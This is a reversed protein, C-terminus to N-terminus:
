GASPPSDKSGAPPSESPSEAAPEGPAGSSPETGEIEATTTSTPVDTEEVELIGKDILFREVAQAGEPGIGELTALDAITYSFFDGVVNINHLKLAVVLEPPLETSELALAPLEKFDSEQVIDIYWGTLKAALRVNEGHKGIAQSFLKDPVEVIMKRKDQELNVIHVAGADQLKLPSLANLVFKRPDEDWLIIDIREGSLMRVIPLIRRGEAGICAGVPDVHADHSAVACKARVGAARVVKKVEVLGSAVEPIEREFLKRLLEPHTRSVRVIPIGAPTKTVKLLLVEIEKGRRLKEVPIRERAELVADLKSVDLWVDGREDIKYIKGTVIDGEKLKLKEFLNEREANVVRQLFENAMSQLAIRSFEKLVVEERYFDEPPNYTERRLVEERSTELQPNEVRAVIRKLLYMKVVGGKLDMEIRLNEPAEELHYNKKYGLKLAEELLAELQGKELVRERSITQIYEVIEDSAPRVATEM